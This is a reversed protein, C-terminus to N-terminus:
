IHSLVVPFVKVDNSKITEDVSIVSKRQTFDPPLQPSFHIIFVIGTALYM